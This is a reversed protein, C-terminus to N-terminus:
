HLHTTLKMSRGNQKQLFLSRCRSAQLSSLGWDRTALFYGATKDTNTNM